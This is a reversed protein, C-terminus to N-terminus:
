LLLSPEAKKICVYYDLSDVSHLILEADYFILFCCYFEIFQLPPDYMLVVRRSSKGNAGGVVNVCASVPAQSNPSFIKIKMLRGDLQVNNYRKHAAFADSRRAYVVEATGQLWNYPYLM